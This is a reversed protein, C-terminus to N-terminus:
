LGQVKAEIIKLREEHSTVAGVIAGLPNLASRFIDAGQVLASEPDPVPILGSSPSGTSLVVPDGPIPVSGPVIIDSYPKGGLTDPM